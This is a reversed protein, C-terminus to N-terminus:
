GTSHKDVKVGNIKSLDIVDGSHLMADTLWDTEDITMGQFCIAMLLAAVQYDPIEQAVYGNIWFDIEAKNLAQGSKKKEIIDVFRM